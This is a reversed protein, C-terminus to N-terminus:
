KNYKIIIRKILIKKARNPEASAIEKLKQMVLKRNEETKLGRSTMTELTTQLSQELTSITNKGLAAIAEELKQQLLESTMRELDERLKQISEQYEPVYNGSAEVTRLTEAVKDLDKIEVEDAHMDDLIALDDLIKNLVKQRAEQLPALEKSLLTEQAKTFQEIIARQVSEAQELTAVKDIELDLVDSVEKNSINYKELIDQKKERVERNFLTRFFGNQEAFVLDKIKQNIDEKNFDGLVAKIEENTKQIEVISRELMRKSGVVKEFREVENIAMNKVYDDVNAFDEPSLQVGSEQKIQGIFITRLSESLGKQDKFRFYRERLEINNDTMEINDADPFQGLFEVFGPDNLAEDLVFNEEEIKRNRIVEKQEKRDPQKNIQALTEEPTQSM